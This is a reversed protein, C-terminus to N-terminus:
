WWWYAKIVKKYIENFQTRIHLNLSNYEALLNKKTKEYDITTLPNYKEQLADDAVDKLHDNLSLLQLLISCAKVADSDGGPFYLVPEIRDRLSEGRQHGFIEKCRIDAILTTLHMITIREPNKCRSIFATATIIQSSLSNQLRFEEDTSLKAAISVATVLSNFKQMDRIKQKEIVKEM